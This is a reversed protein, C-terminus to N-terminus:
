HLKILFGIVPIALVAISIFFLTHALDLFGHVLFVTISEHKDMRGFFRKFYGLIIILPVTVMLILYLATVGPTKLYRVVDEGNQGMFLFGAAALGVILLFYDPVRGGDPYAGKTYEESMIKISRPIKWVLFSVVLLVSLSDFLPLNVFGFFDAIINLAM